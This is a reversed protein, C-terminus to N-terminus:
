GGTMARGYFWLIVKKGEFDSLSTTGKTSACSFAPAKAGITLAMATSAIAFMCLDLNLRPQSRSDSIALLLEDTRRTATRATRQM